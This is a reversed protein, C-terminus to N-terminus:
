RENSQAAPASKTEAPKKPADKKEEEEEIGLINMARKKNLGAKSDGAIARVKPECSSFKGAAYIDLGVSCTDRDQSALFAACAGSFASDPYRALLKGVEKRFAKKTDDSALGEAWKGIESRGATGHKLLAEASQRKVADSTKKDEIQGVLFKDAEAEGFAALKEYAKKKVSAEPDSKARHIIYPISDKLKMKSAADIADLRVKYQSDKIAQVVVSAAEKTEFYALGKVAYCRLTPDQEEYLKSLIEVSEPKKMAGIAEAAYARVFINEGDDQAIEVLADWTQSANIKGLVKMLAQRQATTLDSRDLFQVLYEAEAEGGLEGLTTLAPTFYSENESELLTVVAPIAAKTKLAAAYKFAQEVTSAREDYPDNLITVAYDELCPDEFKTFYELIRERVAPSKTEQFLDYLEDSYRPDDNEILKKVLENLEPEIGYKITDRRKQDSDKEDKKAAEEAKKADPKKPRKAPPVESIGALQIKPKEDSDKKGSSKSDGSKIDLEEPNDVVIEQAKPEDAEVEEAPDAAEAPEGDDEQAEVTGLIKEGAADLVSQSEQLDDAAQAAEQAFLEVSFCLLFLTLFALLKM